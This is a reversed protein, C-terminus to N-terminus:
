PDDRGDARRVGLREDVVVLGDPDLRHHQGRRRQRLGLGGGDRQSRHRGRHLVRLDELDLHGDHLSVKVDTRQIKSDNYQYGQLTYYTRRRLQYFPSHEVKWALSKDVDEIATFPVWVARDEVGRPSTPPDAPALDAPPAHARGRAGQGRGAPVLGLQRRELQAQQPERTRQLHQARVGGVRQRPEARARVRALLWFRRRGGSGRDKWITGGLQGRIVLDSRVCMVDDVSPKSRGRVFVDGLAVYGEPPEPRWCSGDKDAGSGDDVWIRTYGTPRALADQKASVDRM